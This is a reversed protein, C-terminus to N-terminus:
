EKVGVSRYLMDIRETLVQPNMAGKSDQMMEMFATKKPVIYWDWEGHREFFKACIRVWVEENSSIAYRYISTM